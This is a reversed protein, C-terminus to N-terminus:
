NESQVEVEFARRMSAQFEEDKNNSVFRIHLSTFDNLTAKTRKMEKFAMAAIKLGKDLPIGRIGHGILPVAVTCSSRNMELIMNWCRMYCLFLVTEWDIDKQLYYPAVCHIIGKPFVEILRGFSPSYVADGTRRRMEDGYATTEIVPYAKMLYERLEAGCEQHVLGDICEIPYKM